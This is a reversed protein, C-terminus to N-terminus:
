SGPPHCTSVFGCRAKVCRAREIFPWQDQWRCAALSQVHSAFDPAAALDLWTPEASPALLYVLGARVRTAGFHQKAAFAYAALQLAYEVSEGGRSRKYDVIDISADSRTVILDFTTKLLWANPQERPECSSTADSFLSLQMPNHRLKRRQKGRGDGNRTSLPTMLSHERYATVGPECLSRAFDGSLFRAIGAASALAAESGPDMGEQALLELVREPDTAKGWLKLPWRELARHAARGLARPDEDGSTSSAWPLDPEVVRAVHLLQFRRPCIVFDALATAGIALRRCAV